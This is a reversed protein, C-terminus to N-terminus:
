WRASHREVVGLGEALEIGGPLTGSFRGFPQRYDSRVLLMNERRARVAETAFRLQAGDDLAIEDFAPSFRAPGTEHPHGDVWIARESGNPPDNVGSVLNWALERGDRARGVGAAWWWSTVRAHYGATDDIIAPADVSQAHGDVSLTGRARAAGQKRTWVYGEGHRCVVEVAPRREDLELELEVGGEALRARGPALELAAHRLLHTREHLVRRDRDWLAWFSQRAPGVQVSGLCLMLEPAFVGVYRWRKLPRRGRLLPMHAPPLPEPASLAADNVQVTPHRGLASPM